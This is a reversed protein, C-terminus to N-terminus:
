EGGLAKKITEVTEKCLIINVGDTSLVAGSYLPDNPSTYVSNNIEELADRREACTTTTRTYEFGGSVVEEVSGWGYNYQLRVSNPMYKEMKKDSM